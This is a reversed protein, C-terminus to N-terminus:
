PRPPPQRRRQDVLEGGTVLAVSIVLFALAWWPHGTAALLVAAVAVLALKAVLRRPHELRRAANPALWRGWGAAATSPLLLALVIRLLLNDVLGYGGAAFVALLLLEDLFVAADLATVRPHDRPELPV